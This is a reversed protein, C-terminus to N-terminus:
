SSRPGRARLVRGAGRHVEAAARAPDGTPRPRATPTASSSTSRRRARAARGTSRRTRSTTASRTRSRSRRAATSRSTSSSARRVGAPLYKTLADTTEYMHNDADFVLFDLRRTMQSGGTRTCREPRLRGRPNSRAITLVRNESRHADLVLGCDDADARRRVVLTALRERLGLARHHAVRDERCEVVGAERHLVEVAEGDVRERAIRGLDGRDEAHGLHAEGRRESPRRRTRRATPNAAAAIWPPMAFTHTDTIVSCCSLRRRPPESTSPTSAYAVMPPSRRCRVAAASADRRARREGGVDPRSDGPWLNETSACRCM